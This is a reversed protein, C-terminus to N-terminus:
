VCPLLEGADYLDILTRVSQPLNEFAISMGRAAAERTWALMLAVASSDAENVGSFDVRLSPGVLVQHGQDLLGQVTALTVAGRVHLRGRASEIVPIDPM